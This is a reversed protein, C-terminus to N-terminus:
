VEPLLSPSAIGQNESQTEQRIQQALMMSRNLSEISLNDLEVLQKVLALDAQAEDKEASSIKVAMDAAGQVVKSKKEQVTAMDVAIKAQQAQQKSEAEKAQLQM